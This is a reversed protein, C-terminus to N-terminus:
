GNVTHHAHSSNGNNRATIHVAETRTWALTQSSANKPSSSNQHWASESRMVVPLLDDPSHFKVNGDQVSILLAQLRRELDLDTSRRPFNICRFRQFIHRIKLFTRLFILFYCPMKSCGLIIRGKSPLKHIIKVHFQAATNSIFNYVLIVLPAPVKM